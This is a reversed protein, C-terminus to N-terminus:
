KRRLNKFRKTLEVRRSIFKNINRLVIDNPVLTLILSWLQAITLVGFLSFSLSRLIFQQQILIPIRKAIPALLGIILVIAVISTAYIMPSILRNIKEAENKAEDPKEKSYTKSLINPYIIAIWAGMVGFIIASTNRLSEYLPWQEQFPVGGGFKFCIFATLVLLISLFINM